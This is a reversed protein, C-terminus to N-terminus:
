EGPTRQREDRSDQATKSVGAEDTRITIECEDSTNEKPRTLTLEMRGELLMALGVMGETDCLDIVKDIIKHFIAKRMGYALYTKLKDYQQQTIEINLRPSEAM